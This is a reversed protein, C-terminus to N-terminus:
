PILEVRTKGLLVLRSAGDNPAGFVRVGEAAQLQGDRNKGRVPGMLVMEGAQWDAQGAIAQLRTADAESTLVVNGSFRTVRESPSHQAEDARLELPATTGWILRVDSLLLLDEEDGSTAAREYETLALSTTVRAEARKAHLRFGIASASRGELIIGEAEAHARGSLISEEDDLPNLDSFDAGLNRLQPWALLMVLLVVAALPFGWQVMALFPSWLRLELSRSM